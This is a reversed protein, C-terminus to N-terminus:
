VYHTNKHIYIPLYTAIHGSDLTFKTVNIIGSGLPDRIQQIYLM